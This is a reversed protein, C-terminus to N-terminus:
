TDQLSECLILEYLSTFYHPPLGSIEDEWGVAKLSINLFYDYMERYLKSNTDVLGSLSVIVEQPSLQFQECIKLLYFVADVPVTYSYTKALLLQGDKYVTLAFRNSQIDVKLVGQEQTED